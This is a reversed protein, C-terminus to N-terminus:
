LARPSTKPNKPGPLSPPASPTPHRAPRVGPYKVGKPTPSPIGRPMRCRGSTTSEPPNQQPPRPSSAQYSHQQQTPRPDRPCTARPHTHQLPTPPESDTRFAAGPRPRHVSSQGARGRGKTHQSAESWRTMTMTKECEQERAAVRLRPGLPLTFHRTRPRPPPSSRPPPRSIAPSDSRSEGFFTPPLPMCHSPSNNLPPPPARTPHATRSM